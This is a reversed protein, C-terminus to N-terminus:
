HKHFHFSIRINDKGNKNCYNCVVPGPSASNSTRYGHGTHQYPRKNNNLPRRSRYQPQGSPLVHSSGVIAADKNIQKILQIDERELSDGSQILLFQKAVGQKQSFVCESAKM